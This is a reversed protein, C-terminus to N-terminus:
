PPMASLPKGHDKCWAVRYCLSRAAEIYIKIDALKHKIAQFGQFNLDFGLSESYEIFLRRATEIESKTTAQQINLKM